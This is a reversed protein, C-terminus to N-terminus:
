LIQKFLHKWPAKEPPTMSLFRGVLAPSVSEMGQGPRLLDWVAHLLYSQVVFSNLGQELTHISCISFDSHRSGTSQLFLLLYFSLCSHWLLSYGRHAAAVSLGPTVIFVCIFCFLFFIFILLKLSINRMHCLNQLLKQM